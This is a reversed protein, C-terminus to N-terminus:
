REHQQATGVATNLANLHGGNLKGLPCKMFNLGGGFQGRIGASQDGGRPQLGSGEQGCGGDSQGSHIASSSNTM